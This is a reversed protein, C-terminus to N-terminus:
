MSWSLFSDHYLEKREKMESWERSDVVSGSLAASSSFSAMRVVHRVWRSFILDPGGLPTTHHFSSQVILRWASLFVGGPSVRLLADLDKRADTRSAFRDQAWSCSKSFWLVSLMHRIARMRLPLRDCTNGGRLSVSPLTWLSVAVLADRRLLRNKGSFDFVTSMVAAEALSGGGKGVRSHSGIEVCSIASAILPVLLLDAGPGDPM